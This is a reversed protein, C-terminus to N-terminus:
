PSSATFSSNYTWIHTKVSWQCLQGLPRPPTLIYSKSIKAMNQSQQQRPCGHKVFMDQELTNAINMIKHVFQYYEYMDWSWAM